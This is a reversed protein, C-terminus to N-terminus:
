SLANSNPVLLKTLSAQRVDVTGGFVPGVRLSYQFDAGVPQPVSWQGAAPDWQGAAGTDAYQQVWVANTVDYLGAVFGGSNTDEVAISYMLLYTCQDDVTGSTTQPVTVTLIDTDTTVSQPAAATLSEYPPSAVGNSFLMAVLYIGDRGGGAIQTEFLYANPFGAQMELLVRRCVADLEAAHRAIAFRVLGLAAFISQQGNPFQSASTFTCRWAAGDGGGGLTMGSVQASPQQAAIDALLQTARNGLDRPDIGEVTRIGFGDLNLRDVRFPRDM